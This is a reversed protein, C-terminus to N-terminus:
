LFTLYIHSERGLGCALLYTIADDSDSFSFCCSFNFQTLYFRFRSAINLIRIMKAVTKQVRQFPSALNESRGPRKCGCVRKHAVKVM